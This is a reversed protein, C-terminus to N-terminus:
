TRMDLLYDAGPAFRYLNVQQQTPVYWVTDKGVVLVVKWRVFQFLSSYHIGADSTTWTTHTGYRNWMDRIKKRTDPKVPLSSGEVLKHCRKTVGHSTRVWVGADCYCAGTKTSGHIRVVM